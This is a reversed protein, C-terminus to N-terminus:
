NQKTQNQKTDSRPLKKYKQLKMKILMASSRLEM